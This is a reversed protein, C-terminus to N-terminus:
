RQDSIFCLAAISFFGLMLWDGWGHPGAALVVM